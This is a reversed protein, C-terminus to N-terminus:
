FASIGQNDCLAQFEASRLFGSLVEQRTNGSNLRECWHQCEAEDSERDLIAAYLVRVYKENTLKRQLFEASGIFGEVVEATPKAGSLLTNVWYQWGAQDPARQLCVSYLRSLLSEVSQQGSTIIPVDGNGNFLSEQTRGIKERLQRIDDSLFSEYLFIKFDAPQGSLTVKILSSDFRPLSYVFWRQPVNVRYEGILEGNVFVQGTHTNPSFTGLKVALYPQNEYKLFFTSAAGMHRYAKGKLAIHADGWGQGHFEKKRIEIHDSVESVPRSLEWTSRRCHQCEFPPINSLLQERFETYTSGWWIQEFPQQNINGLVRTSACCPHVDGDHAIVVHRWPVGCPKRLNLAVLEEVQYDTRFRFHSEAPESKIEWNLRQPDNYVITIHKEFALRRTQEFADRVDQRGEYEAFGKLPLNQSQGFDDQPAISLRQIHLRDCLEIMRPLQAINEPMAVFAVEVSPRTTGYQNLRKQLCSINALVTQLEGGVRLRRYLDEEVADISFTIGDLGASIISEAVSDTLLMGNTTLHVHVNYAKIKRIIDALDPNILPEGMWSLTVTDVQELLQELHSLMQLSMNGHSPGSPSRGIARPCMKCKLNCLSSIELIVTSPYIIDKLYHRRYIDTDELYPTYDATQHGISQVTSM